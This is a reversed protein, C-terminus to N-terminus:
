MDLDMIQPIQEWGRGRGVQELKQRCVARIEEALALADKKSGAGGMLAHVAGCVHRL